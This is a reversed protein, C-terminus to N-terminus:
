SCSLRSPQGIRELMGVIQSDSLQRRGASDIKKKLHYILTGYSRQCHRLLSDLSIEDSRKEATIVKDAIVQCEENAFKILLDANYQYAESFAQDLQVLADPSIIRKNNTNYEVEVRVWKSSPDGLQKGKEYIRLYKGGQRTGVYLTDGAEKKGMTKEEVRVCKPPRGNGSFSGDYYAQEASDISIQGDMLDYAVDLRTVRGEFDILSKRLTQRAESTRFYKECGTADFYLQVREPRLEPEGFQNFVRNNGGWALFGGPFNFGHTFYNRGKRWIPEVVIDQGTVDFLWETIFEAMIDVNFQQKIEEVTAESGMAEYLYTPKCPVIKKYARLRTSCCFHKFYTVPFTVSMTDIITNNM